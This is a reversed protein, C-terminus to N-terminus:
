DYLNTLKNKIAYIVLGITNKVQLKEILKQRALDVTKESIFLLKGIEKSTKQECILKTIQLERSSLNHFKLISNLEPNANAFRKMMIEVVEKCYFEENASVKKLAQTIQETTSHKLLFGKVGSQMLAVILDADEISSLVIIKTNKNQERIKLTAEIGDMLPMRVDMLVIDPNHQLCKEVAQVGNFAEDIVEIDDINKLITKIGILSVPHDDVIIIKLM